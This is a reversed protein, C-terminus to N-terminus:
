VFVPYLDMEEARGDAKGREPTHVGGDYRPLSASNALLARRRRNFGMSCKRVDRDRDGRPSGEVPVKERGEHQGSVGKGFVGTGEAM